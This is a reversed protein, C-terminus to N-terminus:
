NDRHRRVGIKMEVLGSVSINPVCTGGESHTGAGCEAGGGEDPVCKGSVLKTGPGCSPSLSGVCQTGDGHTGEGCELSDGCGAVLSAISALFFIRNM